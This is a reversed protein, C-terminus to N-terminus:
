MGPIWFLSEESLVIAPCFYGGNRLDSFQSSFRKLELDTLFQWCVFDRTIRVLQEHSLANVLDRFHLIDVMKIFIM